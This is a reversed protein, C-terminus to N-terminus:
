TSGLYYIKGEHLIARLLRNIFLSVDHFAITDIDDAEPLLFFHFEPSSVLGLDPNVIDADAPVVCRYLQDIIFNVERVEFGFEPRQHEELLLQWNM